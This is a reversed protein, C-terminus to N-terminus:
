RDKAGALLFERNGEGGAIPSPHLGLTRWGPQADLWDRLEEAIRPALDPDRLLGGKGIAERGAEFQPKVLFLGNAEPAALALAAPLALKLSIFSVDAVVFNPRENGLDEATLDRANLGEISVVRPDAALVPDLQGHGVDIAVVRAAGRQLLVQTFGGTSAGIDLAVAGAPNLGFRDLGDALKLAARSVYASAPDDVELAANEDVPQGPKAAVAGDVRVTGRLIADRARSRSGFTGRAVLLEDLRLKSHRTWAAKVRGENAFASRWPL